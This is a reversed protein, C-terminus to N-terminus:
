IGAFTLQEPEVERDAHANSSEDLEDASVRDLLVSPRVRV